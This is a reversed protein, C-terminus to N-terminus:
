SWKRIFRWLNIMYNMKEPILISIWKTDINHKKETLDIKIRFDNKSLFM